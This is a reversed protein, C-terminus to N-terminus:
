LKLQLRAVFSWFVTEGALLTREPDSFRERMADGTLRLYRNLYWNLGMTLTLDDNPYLNVARPNRFPPEGRTERSSLRLQDVRVAAELAGIGGGLFAPKVRDVDSKSQGTLVFSGAVYWGRSVLDPLDDDALGQGLRDDSGELYEATFTAPGGEAHVDVGWRWRDGKVYVRDFFSEGFVSEGHLSNLSEPLKTRTAGFGIEFGAFGDRNRLRFPRIVVRGAMTSNPSAVDDEEDGSESDLSIDSAPDKGFFGVAYEIGRGRSRGHVMGGVDRGPTLYRTANSREVFELEGGSRLRERGFPVKFKGGQVQLWPRVRLNAYVDRWPDDSDLQAEVQFELVKFLEGAVSVRRRPIDTDDPPDAPIPDFGRADFQFLGRLEIQFTDGWRLEPRPVVRARFARDPEPTPASSQASAAPQPDASQAQAASALGIAGVAVTLTIFGSWRMALGELVEAAGARRTGAFPLLHETRPRPCAAPHDVAVERRFGLSLASLAMSGIVAVRDDVLVLKGHPRLPAVHPEGKVDVTIGAARRERLLSLMAPDTLKHDVIRISREAGALLATMQDRAGEPGVILRDGLNSPFAAEPSNWDADFLRVLGRVVTPDRTTLLFDCTDGFCKKTFNLSAIVALRDDAVLYKAHYKVVPDAYSRVEAGMNELLAVLAGLKKKWGKARGTLLLRLRVGRKLAAALADLVAFDDCRFIAM